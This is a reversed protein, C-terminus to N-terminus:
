DISVHKSNIKLLNHTQKVEKIIGMLFPYSMPKFTAEAVFHYSRLINWRLCLNLIKQKM